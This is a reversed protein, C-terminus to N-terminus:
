PTGEEADDAAGGDAPGPAPPPPPADASPAAPIDPPGDPPEPPAADADQGRASPAAPTAADRDALLGALADAGLNPLDPITDNRRRADDAGEEGEGSPDRDDGKNSAEVLLDVFAPMHPITDHIERERGPAATEDDAGEEDDGDEGAGAATTWMLGDTLGGAPAAPVAEPPALPEFEDPELWSSPLIDHDGSHADGSPSRVGGISKLVTLEDSTSRLRTSMVKLFSWLLKVALSPNKRLVDYFSRRSIILTQVDSVAVADASRPAKDVLAMEGFHTGDGLRAVEVEQKLIGVTGALIVYLSDERDGERFIVEGKSFTRELAINVVKVLEQYNLYKFLALSKLTALKRRVRDHRVDPASEPVSVIIATINDKGGKENAFRIFHDVVSQDDADEMIRLVRENTLYGHLGDTCLLFRDGPLIDFDLTDVEVSEYVGVARTVANKYRSPVGAGQHIRGQKLLENVLSHDETLQHVQEQRLLYIRSDGVHAIFGRNGVVMLLVVTTGMGRHEPSQQANEFIQFCAHQVAQELMALIDRRGVREDGEEFAGVLERHRVIDDRVINVTMASAVEGAAHGGMGDCVVFLQLNKDVLFNDENHDRTIGVDTGAGFRIKM